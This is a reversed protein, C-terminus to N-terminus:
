APATEDAQLATMLALRLVNGETSAQILIEPRDPKVAHVTWGSEEERVRIDWRYRFFEQRLRFERATAPIGRAALLATAEAVQHTESDSRASDETM